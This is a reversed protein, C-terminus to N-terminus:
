KAEVVYLDAAPFSTATKQLSPNGSRDLAFAIKDIESKSNLM